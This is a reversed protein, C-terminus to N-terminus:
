GEREYTSTHTTSTLLGLQEAIRSLTALRKSLGADFRIDEGEIEEQQYNKDMKIVASLAAELNRNEQLALYDANYELRKKIFLFVILLLIFACMPYSMFTMYSLFDKAFLKFALWILLSIGIIAAPIMYFSKATLPGSKLGAIEHALAFDMEVDSLEDVAKQSMWIYGFPFGMVQVNNKSTEDITVSSIRVGMNQGLYIARNLIKSRTAEVISLDVGHLADWEAQAAHIKKGYLFRVLPYMIPMILMTIYNRIFSLAKNDGLHYIQFYSLAVVCLAIALYVLVIKREIARVKPPKDNSKAKWDNYWSM